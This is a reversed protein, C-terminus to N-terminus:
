NSLSDWDILNHFEEPYLYIGENEYVLYRVGDAIVVVNQLSDAWTQVYDEHDPGAMLIDWNEKSIGEVAEFKFMQAFVQASYIGHASNVVHQFHQEFTDEM